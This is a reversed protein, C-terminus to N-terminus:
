FTLRLPKDITVPNRTSFSKDATFAALGAIAPQGFRKFQAYERQYTFVVTVKPGRQGSFFEPFAM